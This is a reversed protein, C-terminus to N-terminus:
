KEEIEIDIIDPDSAKPSSRGNGKSSENGPQWVINRCGTCRIVQNRYGVFQRRCAPCSGQEYFELPSIITWAHVEGVSLIHDLIIM